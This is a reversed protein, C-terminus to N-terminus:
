KDGCKILRFQIDNVIRGASIFKGDASDYISGYLINAKESFSDIRYTYGDSPCTEIISNQGYIKYLNIATDIPNDVVKM